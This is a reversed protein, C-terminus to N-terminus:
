CLLWEECDENEGAPESHDWGQWGHSSNDLSVLKVALLNCIYDNFRHRM